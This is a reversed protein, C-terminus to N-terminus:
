TSDLLPLALDTYISTPLDLLALIRQQLPSLPSLQRHVEVGDRLRYLVVLAFIKLLRETTPRATTRTPNGAYLGAVTEKTDALTRRAVFEILTLARLALVLLVMLGRIRKDSRLLLPRIALVGGKLRAFAHEPQWQQRYSSVAGVLDLRAAPANTVYLRWGAVDAAQEIAERRRRVEIHWARKTVIEFPTDPTHRGRRLYRKQETVEDHWIVELYPEVRYQTVIAASRAEVEARELRAPARQSALAAEAKSLRGVLGRQESEAHADSRVVFLRETWRVQGNTAPDTWTRITDTEYGVGVSAGDPESHPLRISTLTSPAEKVLRRLLEPTVGTAPLPTLYWGGEREITARTELSAMKSDGVALFESRGLMARIARWAPVYLPDDASAGDVCTAVLPIGVPDLTALM